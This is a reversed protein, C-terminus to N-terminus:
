GDRSHIRREPMVEDSLSECDAVLFLVHWHPKGHQMTAAHTAARYPAAIPRDSEELVGSYHTQWNAKV